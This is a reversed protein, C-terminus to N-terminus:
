VSLIEKKWWIQVRPRQLKYCERLLSFAGVTGSFGVGFIFSMFVVEFCTFFHGIFIFFCFGGSVSVLFDMM